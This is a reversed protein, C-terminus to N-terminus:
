SQHAIAYKGATLGSIDGIEFPRARNDASALQADAIVIGCMLPIRNMTQVVGRIRRQDLSHSQHYGIRLRERGSPGLRRGQGCRRRSPHVAVHRSGLFEPVLEHNVDLDCRQQALRVLPRDRGDPDFRRNLVKGVDRLWTATRRVPLTLTPSLLARKGKGVSVGIVFSGDVVAM